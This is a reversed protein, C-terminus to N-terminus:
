NLLAMKRLLDYSARGFMLRKLFKIKCVKGEVAGSSYPLTLGALVAAHDRELGNAFAHLHPLDDARVATIWADLREGHRGTLMKAFEEVHGRLADLHPCAARVQMLKLQEDADLNGPRRRIWSTVYRVKPPGLVAPPAAKGQFPALYAYVTAYSGRFGLAKVERHLQQINTCGENWRRHLHPKYDDLMSPWGALSAAALEDASDAHFYRRATGPALRLERTIAAIRKGEAKLKQVQEYRQRTRVVRARNEAHVATAREATQQPDPAQDAAAQGPAAYHDKICGHHAAVTKKVYDGLDDWMHWRDAVQQAGPAGERAGLAYGGARDRCILQVGPHARLWGAFTGAERGPLIDIVRHSDMDLLVSAYSQGRRKAWDDVGLVAVKGIEPDPLARILRILTCRSVIAGLVRALRSGARGALALAIRELLSRLGVTRRQHRATLGDVQEAFTAVACAPNDCIFRRVRLVVQVPRGCCSLDQLRRWYRDHVRTALEGCKPCTVPSTRTRAVLRVLDGADEVQDLELSGLHPFLLYILRAEEASLEHQV